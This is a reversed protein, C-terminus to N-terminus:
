RPHQAHDGVHGGRHLQRALAPLHPARGGGGSFVARDPRRMEYRTPFLTGTMGLLDVCLEYVRQNLEAGKLKAVSGEPGPTGARRLVRARMNTLRAVEAEVWLTM